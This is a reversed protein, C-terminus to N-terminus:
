GLIPNGHRTQRWASHPGADCISPWCKVWSQNLADLRYWWCAPVALMLYQSPSFLYQGAGAVSAWCKVSIPDTNAQVRRWCYASGSGCVRPTSGTSTQHQALTASSPGSKTWCQTLTEHKGPTNFLWM